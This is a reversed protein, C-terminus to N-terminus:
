AVSGCQPKPGVMVCPVSCTGTSVWESRRLDVRFRMDPTYERLQSTQGNTGAVANCEQIENGACHYLGKASCGGASAPANGQGASAGPNSSTGANGSGQAAPAGNNAKTDSSGGANPSPAAGTNPGNYNSYVSPMANWPPNAPNTASPGPPKM